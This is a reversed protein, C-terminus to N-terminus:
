AAAFREPLDPNDLRAFDFHWDYTDDGRWFKSVSTGNYHLLEKGIQYEEQGQLRLDIACLVGRADSLKEQNANLKQDNTAIARNQGLILQKLIVVVDRHQPNDGASVFESLRTVFIDSTAIEKTERIVTNVQELLLDTVTEAPAKKSLKDTEEYLGTSVSKLLALSDQRRRLDAVREQLKPILEDRLQHQYDAYVSPPKKNPM